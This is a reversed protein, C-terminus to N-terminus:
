NKLWNSIVRINKSNSKFILTLNGEFAVKNGRLDRAPLYKLKELVPGSIKDVLSHSPSRYRSYAIDGLTDIRVSVQITDAFRVYNDQVIGGGALNAPFPPNIISDLYPRFSIRHYEYSYDLEEPYSPPWVEAPYALRHFFRVTVFINSAIPNDKFKAPEYEAYLLITSFMDSYHQHNSYITEINELQGSSDLEIKYVAFPYDSYNVNGKFRCFYSPIKKISAPSFKNLELTKKILERNKTDTKSNHPLKLRARARYRETIFGLRAPLIVPIEKDLYRGPSFDINNLSALVGDIFGFKDESHYKLSDICGKESLFFLIDYTVPFRTYKVNDGELLWDEYLITPLEFGNINLDDADIFLPFLMFLILPNLFYKKMGFFLLSDSM